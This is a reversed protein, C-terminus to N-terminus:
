IRPIQRSTSVIAYGLRSLYQYTSFRKQVMTLWRVPKMVWRSSRRTLLLSFGCVVLQQTRSLSAAFPKNNDESTQAICDESSPIARCNREACYFMLPFNLFEDEYSLLCRVFCTRLTTLITLDGPYKSDRRQVKWCHFKDLSNAKIYKGALKREAILFNSPLLTCRNNSFRRGNKKM